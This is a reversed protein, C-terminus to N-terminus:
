FTCPQYETFVKNCREPFCDQVLKSIRASIARIEEKSLAGTEIIWKVIGSNKIVIDTSQIIDSDFKNYDGRKFANYDCVFDIDHAGNKIANSAELVKQETRSEGLPFDIVTGIKLNSHSRAILKKAVSVFEPRIMICAFELNIAEHIRSIVIEMTKSESIGADESTTLYTSDLYNNIKINKM